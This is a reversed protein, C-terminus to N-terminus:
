GENLEKEAEKIRRDMVTVVREFKERFIIPHCDAKFGYSVAEDLAEIVAKEEPNFWQMLKLCPLGIVTNMSWVVMRVVFM